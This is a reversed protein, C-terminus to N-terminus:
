KGVKKGIPTDSETDSVLLKLEPETESQNLGSDYGSNDAPAPPLPKPHRRRLPDSKVLRIRLNEDGSEGEKVFFDTVAFKSKPRIWNQQEM